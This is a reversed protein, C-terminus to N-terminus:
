VEKPGKGFGSELKVITLGYYFMKGVLQGWRVVSILLTPKPTTKTQSSRLSAMTEVILRRLEEDDARNRGKDSRLASRKEHFSFYLLLMVLSFSVTSVVATLVAIWVYNARIGAYFFLFIGSLLMGGVIVKSYNIWLKKFRQFEEHIPSSM